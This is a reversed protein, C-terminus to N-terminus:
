LREVARVVLGLLAFVAVTLLVYALDAMKKTGRNICSRRPTTLPSGARDARRHDHMARVIAHATGALVGLLVLVAGRVAGDGGASGIYGSRHVGFGTVCPWAIM